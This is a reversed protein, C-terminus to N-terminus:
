LISIPCYYSERDYPVIEDSMCMILAPRIDLDFKKLLGFHKGANTPNKSKKIEIPYCQRDKMILLDIEKKDVDRYYYIDPNMGANYYSKVIESVVYTELFAGDMAGFELTEASPWKCLYACLGTDMFYIKPTKVLRKSINNYYPRLIYIIGSRELISIWEKATVVSVGISNAIETYRLEQGTRAAIYIIFDSFAGLKGIHAYDRIDKEIYTNVYDSYYRNRDIDTTIIKPMGGRFISEYINKINRKSCKRDKLADIEPDFLSQREGRIESATLSSMEFIAVRGALSESVNHMMKFNQSGTLWFMGSNPEGRLAREDVIRKIELTLEPVRQFEDIIIPPQYTEFFLAPDTEALRRANIDDLSIYTREEEKIHYLMTSKGVQRQGTVMVVPYNKSAQLIQEEIHRTIYM